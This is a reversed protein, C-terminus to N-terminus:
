STPTIQARQGRAKEFEEQRCIAQPVRRLLFGEQGPTDAGRPIEAWEPDLVTQCVARLEAAVSAAIVIIVFWHRLDPDPWVFVTQRIRMRTYWKLDSDPCVRIHFSNKFKKIPVTERSQIPGHM